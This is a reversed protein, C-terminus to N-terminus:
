KGGPNPIDARILAETATALNSFVDNDLAEAPTEPLRASSGTRYGPDDNEKGDEDWIVALSPGVYDMEPRSFLDVRSVSWNFYGGKEYLQVEERVTARYQGEPLGYENGADVEFNIVAGRPSYRGGGKHKIIYPKGGPFPLSHRIHKGNKAMKLATTDFRPRGEVFFSNKPADPFGFGNVGAQYTLYAVKSPSEELPNWNQSKATKNPKAATTGTISLTGGLM